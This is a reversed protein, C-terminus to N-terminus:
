SGSSLGRGELELHLPLGHRARDARGERGGDQRRGLRRDSEATIEAIMHDPLGIARIAKTSPSSPTLVLLM